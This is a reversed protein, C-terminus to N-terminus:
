KKIDKLYISLNELRNRFVPTSVTNLRSLIQMAASPDYGAKKTFHVANMDANIERLQLNPINANNLEPTFSYYDKAIVHSIEHALIFAVEDDSESASILASTVLVTGDPLVCADKKSDTLVKINVKIGTVPELKLAVRAVKTRISDADAADAKASSWAVSSLILVGIAIAKIKGTIKM